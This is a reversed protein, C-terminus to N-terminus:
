LKKRLFDADDPCLCRFQETMRIAPPADARPCAAYGKAQFFAGATETLLYLADVGVGHAHLEVAELVRSALGLGRHQMDTAFSRLLGFSGHVEVGGLAVVQGGMELALFHELHAEELDAVPLGAPVLLFHCERLTPRRLILGAGEGGLGPPQAADM